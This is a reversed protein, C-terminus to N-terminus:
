SSEYYQEKSKGWEVYLAAKAFLASLNHPDRELVKDFYVLSSDFHFFQADHNGLKIWLNFLTNKNNPDLSLVQDYYNIAEDYRELTDLASVIGVLADINNSDVKLIDEHAHVSDYLISPLKMSISKLYYAYAKGNLADINDPYFQLVNM